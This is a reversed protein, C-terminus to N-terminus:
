ILVIKDSTLLTTPIEEEKWPSPWFCGTGDYKDRYGFLNALALILIQKDTWRGETVLDAGRLWSIWNSYLLFVDQSISGEGFVVSGSGLVNM